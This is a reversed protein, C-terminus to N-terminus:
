CVLYNVSRTNDKEEAQIYAFQPCAREETGSVFLLYKTKFIDYKFHLYFIWTSINLLVSFIYFRPKALVNLISTEPYLSVLRLILLHFTM